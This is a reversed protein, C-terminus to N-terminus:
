RALSPIGLTQALLARFADDTQHVTQASREPGVRLFRCGSADLDMQQVETQQRQFSLHYYPGNDAPCNYTGAQANPLAMAADYLRQVAAEDTVTKDLPPIGPRPSTRTVHLTM